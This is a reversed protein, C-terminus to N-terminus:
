VIDNGAGDGVFFFTFTHLKKAATYFLWGAAQMFPIAAFTKV